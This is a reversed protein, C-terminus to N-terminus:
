RPRHIRMNQLTVQGIPKVSLLSQLNNLKFFDVTGDEKLEPRAANNTDFHYILSADHGHTPAKGRAVIIDTCYPKKEIARNITEEDIGARVKRQALMDMIHAKSTQLGGESPPFMRLVVTMKDLMVQIDCRENVPPIKMPALFLVVKEEGMSLLASNIAKVDYPVGVSNLYEKLEAVRIREGDGTPPSM